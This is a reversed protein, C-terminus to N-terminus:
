LCVFRVVAYRRPADMCCDLLGFWVLLMLILSYPVLHSQRRLIGEWIFGLPFFRLSPFFLVARLHIERRPGYVIMTDLMECKDEDRVLLKPLKWKEFMVDVNNSKKYRFSLLKLRVTSLIVECVQEKSWKKKQFLSRSKARPILWILIDNLFPALSEMGALSLVINWVQSSFCRGIQDGMSIDRKTTTINATTTTTLLPPLQSVIGSRDM